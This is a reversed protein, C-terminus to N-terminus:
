LKLSTTPTPIHKIRNQIYPKSHLIIQKTPFLSIDFQKSLIM